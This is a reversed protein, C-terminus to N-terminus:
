KTSINPRKKQGARPTDAADVPMIGLAVALILIVTFVPLVSFSNEKVLGMLYVFMKLVASKLASNKQACNGGEIDRNAIGPM